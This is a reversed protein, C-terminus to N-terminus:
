VIFCPIKHKEKLTPDEALADYKEKLLERQRCLEKYQAIKHNINKEDNHKTNNNNNSCQKESPNSIVSNSIM